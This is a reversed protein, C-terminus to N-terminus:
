VDFERQEYEQRKWCTTMWDEWPFRDSPQWTPEVENIFSFEIKDPRKDYSTYIIEKVEGGDKAKILAVIIQKEPEDMSTYIIEKVEGVDKAKILAVIIQKEPEDMTTGSIWWPTYLTFPGMEAFCNYWRVWWRRVGARREYRACTDCFMCDCAESVEHPTSELKREDVL